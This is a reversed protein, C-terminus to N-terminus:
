LSVMVKAEIQLTKLLKELFKEKERKSERKKGGERERGYMEKGSGGMRKWKGVSVCVFM